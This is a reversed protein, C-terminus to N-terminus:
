STTQEMLQSARLYDTLSVLIALLKGITLKYKEDETTVRTLDTDAHEFTSIQGKENVNETNDSM